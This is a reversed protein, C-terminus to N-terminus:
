RIRPLNPIVDQVTYFDKIPIQPTTHKANTMAAECRRSTAEEAMSSESATQGAEHAARAQSTGKM